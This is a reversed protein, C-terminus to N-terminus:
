SLVADSSVRKLRVTLNYVNDFNHTSSMLEVEAYLVEWNANDTTPVTVQIRKGQAADVRLAIDRFVRSTVVPWTYTYYKFPGYKTGANTDGYADLPSRSVIPPTIGPFAGNIEVSPM